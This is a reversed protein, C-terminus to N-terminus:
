DIAAQKFLSTCGQDIESDNYGKRDHAQNNTYDPEQDPSAVKVLTM